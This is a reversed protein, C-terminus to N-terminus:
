VSAVHPPPNSSARPDVSGLALEVLAEVRRDWSNAEIFARRREEAAPGLAMAEAVGSPFADSSRVLVVRDDIARIPDLATAAVPRGAALYEYIKLPSMAQTLRTAHHPVIGVDASGVLEPVRVRPVRPHFHVNPLTRLPAVHTEDTVDGVLAISGSHFRGAIARVAEVDLRDDIVGLYLIRPAPLAALWTSPQPLEWWELADVGNPIVAHPGCPSIRDIIATTVAGVGMGSAGIRRYAEEIAPWWPRFAPAAAWDDEAFFTVGSAWDFPTFAAALANAVVVHPADLHARAAATQLRRGYARYSRELTSPRRPESRRLRFPQYLTHADSTPFPESRYGRVRRALRIPLSRFPNAVLARRVTSQGLLGLSLRDVPHSMRHQADDWTVTSFIFLVDRQSVSDPM